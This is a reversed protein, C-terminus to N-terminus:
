KQYTKKKISQLESEKLLSLAACLIFLGGWLLKMQFIEPTYLISFLTAFLSETSLIIAAETSPVFKQAYTQLSFALLTSFLALYIVPIMASSFLVSPRFQGTFIATILSLLGAIFMQWNILALLHARKRQAAFGLYIIHLAFFLACILSLRDGINFSYAGDETLIYIGLLTLFSATYVKPKLRKGFIFCLILPTIVVNVATLFANHSPTTYKLGLTQFGFALFLLIGPISGAKFNTKLHPVTTKRTLTFIILSAPLFRLAMMYFAGIGRDLAFYAAIFGSGWIVAVIFLLFRGWILKNIKM